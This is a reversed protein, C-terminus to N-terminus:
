LLLLWPYFNTHKGRKAANIDRNGRKTHAFSVNKRLSSLFPLLSDMYKQQVIARVFNPKMNGSVLPPAQVSKQIM